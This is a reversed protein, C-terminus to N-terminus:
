HLYSLFSNMKMIAERNNGCNTVFDWSVDPNNADLGGGQTNVLGDKSTLKWSAKSREM